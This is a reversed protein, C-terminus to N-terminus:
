PPPRFDGVSAMRGGGHKHGLLASKQGTLEKVDFNELTRTLVRIKM